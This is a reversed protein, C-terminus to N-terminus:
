KDLEFPDMLGNFTDSKNINDVEGDYKYKGGADECRVM